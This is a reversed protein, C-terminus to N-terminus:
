PEVSAVVMPLYGEVLHKDCHAEGAGFQVSPSGVEFYGLPEGATSATLELRATSTSASVAPHDKVGVIERPSKMGPFYAAVSDFSPDERRALELEGLTDRLDGEIRRVEAASLRLRDRDTATLSFDRFSCAIRDGAEATEKHLDPSLWPTQFNKWPDALIGYGRGVMVFAPPSKELIASRFSIRETQWKKGDQSSLYRIADESLEIAAYRCPGPHRRDSYM